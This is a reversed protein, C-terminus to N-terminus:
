IHRKMHLSLHDSRSFARECLHCQFPRDGTHKRYHRTLEDSRAFKWGCGKWSCHYPKEGTHTRLHAKLHSSKTYTKSCGPHSCSHSTQRKRGWTRRGRKKPQVTTVEMSPLAAQQQQQQQPPPLLIQDLHPSSPPTIMHHSAPVIAPVSAGLAVHSHHHHQSAPPCRQQEQQHQHCHIHNQHQYPHPHHPSLKTSPSIMAQQHGHQQSQLPRVGMQNHSNFPSMQQNMKIMSIDHMDEPSSPPSMHHQPFMGSAIAQPQQQHHHHQLQQSIQNSPIVTVTGRYSACSQPVPPFEQKPIKFDSINNSSTVVQQQQISQSANSQNLHSEKTTPLATISQRVGHSNNNNNNATKVDNFMMMMNDICNSDMNMTTSAGTGGMGGEDFKIPPIDFFSSSFDPIGSQQNQLEQKIVRRSANTNSCSEDVTNNLIFDLDLLEEYFDCDDEHQNSVSQPSSGYVSGQTQYSNSGDPSACSCGGNTSSSSYSDIKLLPMAWGAAAAASTPSPSAELRLTDPSPTPSSSTTPSAPAERLSDNLMSMMSTEYPTNDPYLFNDAWNNHLDMVDEYKPLSSDLLKSNVEMAGTDLM